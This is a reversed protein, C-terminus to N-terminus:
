ALVVPARDYSSLHKDKSWIYVRRGQNLECQHKWEQRISLDGLGSGKGKSDTRAVWDPFESLWSKLKAADDFPTPTFPLRGDLAETVTAVFVEAVKRRLGGDSSCQGVHNGTELIATTPLLLSEGQEVKRKFEARM